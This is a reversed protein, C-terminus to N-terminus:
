KIEDCVSVWFYGDTKEDRRGVPIKQHWLSSDLLDKHLQLEDLRTLQGGRRNIEKVIKVYADVWNGKATGLIYDAQYKSSIGLIIM